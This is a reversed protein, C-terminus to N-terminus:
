LDTSTCGDLKCKMSNDPSLPVKRYNWKCQGHGSCDRNKRLGYLADKVSTDCVPIKVCLYQKIFAVRILNPGALTKHRGGWLSDLSGSASTDGYMKASMVAARSSIADPCGTTHDEKLPKSNDIDFKQLTWNTLASDCKAEEETHAYVRGMRAQDSDVSFDVVLLENDISKMRDKQNLWNRIDM